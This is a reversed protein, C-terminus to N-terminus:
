VSAAVVVVTAGARVPAAAVTPGPALGPGEADLPEIRRHPVLDAPQQLIRGADRLFVLAAQLRHAGPRAPGLQLRDRALEGLQAGARAPQDVAVGLTHDALRLEFWPECAHPLADGLKLCFSRRQLVRSLLGARQLEDDALQLCEGGQDPIPQVPRIPGHFAVDDAGEHPPNLNIALMDPDHEADAWSRLVACSCASNPLM